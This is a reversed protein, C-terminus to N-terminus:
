LFVISLQLKSIEKLPNATLSVAPWCIRYTYWVYNFLQLIKQKRKLNGSRVSWYKTVKKIKIKKGREDKTNLEIQHLASGHLAEQRGKESSHMTTRPMQWCQCPDTWQNRQFCPNKKEKKSNNNNAHSAKLPWTRVMHSCLHEHQHLPKQCSQM